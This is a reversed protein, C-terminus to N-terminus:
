WDEDDGFLGGVNGTEEEEEEEKKEEKKEGAADAGGAAAGGAPAAGGSPVAALKETGATILEDINKDKLSAVLKKAQEADCEGGVSEILKKLDEEQYLLVVIDICNSTRKWWTRTILLCSHTESYLHM